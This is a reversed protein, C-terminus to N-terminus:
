VTDTVENIESFPFGIKNLASSLAQKDSAHFEAIIKRDPSCCYATKLKVDEIKSDTLMKKTGRVMTWSDASDVRSGSIDTNVIFVKM